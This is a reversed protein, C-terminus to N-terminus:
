LLDTQQQLEVDVFINDEADSIQFRMQRAPNELEKRTKALKNSDAFGSTDKSNTGALWSM